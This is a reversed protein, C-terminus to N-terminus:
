TEPMESRHGPFPMAAVAACTETRVGAATQLCRCADWYGAAADGGAAAAAPDAWEVAEHVAAADAAVVVVDAAAAIEVRADSAGAMRVDPDLRDEAVVHRDAFADDAAVPDSTVTLDPRIHEELPDSGDSAAGPEARGDSHVPWACAARSGAARVEAHVPVAVGLAVAAVDM